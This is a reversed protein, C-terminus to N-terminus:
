GMRNYLALRLMKGHTLPLVWAYACLQRGPHILSWMRHRIHM